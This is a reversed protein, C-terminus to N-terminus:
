IQVFTDSNAVKLAALHPASSILIQNNIQFKDIDLNGQIQKFIDYIKIMEMTM